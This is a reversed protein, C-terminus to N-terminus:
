LRGVVDALQESMWAAHKVAELEYTYTDYPRARTILHCQMGLAKPMALDLEYIDGIVLTSALTAPDPPAGVSEWFKLLAEFYAGRRLYVPRALDAPETAPLADFHARLPSTIEFALERVLYKTANGHVQIKARLAPHSVLEADLRGAVVKTDTNSIFAVHPVRAAVAALTDKFDARFPAANDRAAAAFTDPGPKAIAGARVLFGAAEGALIYCDAAAPASSPAGQLTWGAVPSAARVAECARRWDNPSAGVLARYSELFGEHIDEVRTCTGDFDFVVYEIGM